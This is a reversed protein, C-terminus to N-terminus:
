DRQLRTKPNCSHHFRVCRECMRLDGDVFLANLPLAGGRGRVHLLLLNCLALIANYIQIFFFRAACFNAGVKETRNIALIGIKARVRRGSPDAVKVLTVNAARIGYRLFRGIQLVFYVECRNESRACKEPFFFPRRWHIFKTKNGSVREDEGREGADRRETM